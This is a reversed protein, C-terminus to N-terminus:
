KHQINQDSTLEAEPLRPKVTLQSKRRHGEFKEPFFELIDM